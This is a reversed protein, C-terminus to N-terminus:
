ADRGVPNRQPAGALRMGAAASREFGPPLPTAASPAGSFTTRRMKLPPSHLGRLILAKPIEDRRTGIGLEATLNVVQGQGAKVENFCELLVQLKPRRPVVPQARTWRQRAGGANKVILERACTLSPPAEGRHYKGSLFGGALPSWPLLAFGYTQAM